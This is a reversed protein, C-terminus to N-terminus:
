AFRKNWSSYGSDLRYNSKISWINDNILTLIYSFKGGFFLMLIDKFLLHIKSFKLKLKKNRLIFSPNLFFSNSYKSSFLDAFSRKIVHHWVISFSAGAILKNDRIAYMRNDLLLVYTDTRFWLLSALLNVNMLIYYNLM